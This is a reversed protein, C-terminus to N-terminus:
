ADGSIKKIDNLRALWGKGFVDFNKTNEYRARRLSLYYTLVSQADCNQLSKLTMPGIHGDPKVGISSQLMMIAISVGQNVACDFVALRLADPIDECCCKDWYDRKYIVCAEEKTLNKIDVEPYFKQAIGFNTLGGPDHPDNVICGEHKLIIEIAYEFRM